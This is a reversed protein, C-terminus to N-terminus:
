IVPKYTPFELLPLEVQFTSNESCVFPVQSSLIQYRNKINALGMGLSPLPNSFPQINNSVGLCLGKTYIHIHLPQALTARNHKIANEILLQVTIPPIWLSNLPPSIDLKIQVQHGHRIQILYLYAKVFAIEERLPVLDHKVNQIMYRYVKSLNDLFLSAKPGDELILESLTSFNNFLFHPDLQLKLSQLEAQLASEKSELAKIKLDAAEELTSKWRQLLYYGTYLGSVMLAVILSVIFTQYVELTEQLSLAAPYVLKYVRDELALIVVCTLLTFVTQLLFRALPADSWPLRRELGRAIGLSGESILWSFFFGIGLEIAWEKPLMQIYYKWIIGTPNLLFSLVQIALYVLPVLALRWYRPDINQTPILRGHTM